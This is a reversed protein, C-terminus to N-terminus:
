IGPPKATKEIQTTLRGLSIEVRQRYERFERKLRVYQGAMNLSTLIAAKNAPLVRSGGQSVEELQTKVLHLIEHVDEEPVDTYLPYEQGLVEFKVLREL